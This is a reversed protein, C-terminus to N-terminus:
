GCYMCSISVVMFLSKSLSCLWKSDFLSLRFTGFQVNARTHVCCLKVFHLSILIFIPLSLMGCAVFDFCRPICTSFVSLHFLFNKKVAYMSTLCNEAVKAINLFSM